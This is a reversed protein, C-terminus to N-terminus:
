LEWEFYKADSTRDISVVDTGYLKTLIKIEWYYHYNQQFPVQGKVAATGSSYVPHFTVERGERSIRVNSSNLDQWSWDFESEEEGCDCQLM